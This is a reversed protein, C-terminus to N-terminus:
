AVQIRKCYIHSAALYGTQEFLLRSTTNRTLVHARVHCVEPRQAALWREAARLLAAGLGQGLRPTALYISVEAEDDQIDFRVVGVAGQADEGVLLDRDPAALVGAFWYRHDELAIAASDRSAQRVAPANRWAHLSECDAQRARRIRIGAGLMAAIVRGTGRGDVLAMGAASMRQRMAANHLLAQLHIAIQGPEPLGGDPLCVVGAAAAARLVQAQNDALALALTPVGLCCREWSAGGGAGVALDAHALLQAMEQTQVHCRSGPRSDCFAQIERLASHGAGVVVDVDPVPAPLKEIAALVRGTANGGDMGGLFVLLRRVPGTRPALRERAQAFEPRLLLYSPGLLLVAGRGAEAQYRSPVQPDLNADLLLDCVHARGLDDIALLRTAVDRLGGEWQADLGYHDVVLWDPAFGELVARTAQADRLQDNRAWAQQPAEAGAPAELDLAVHAHGHAALMAALHAPLDRTVFCVEAGRASLGDALTLCRVIHGSGVAPSADARIAVKM